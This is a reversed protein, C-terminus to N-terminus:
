SMKLIQENEGYKYIVLDYHKSKRKVHESFDGFDVIVLDQPSIKEESFLKRTQFKLDEYGLILVDLKKHVM